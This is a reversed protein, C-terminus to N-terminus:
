FRVFTILWKQTFDVVGSTTTTTTTTRKAEIRQVRKMRWVKNAALEFTTRPAPRWESWRQWTNSPDARGGSSLICHACAITGPSIRRPPAISLAARVITKQNGTWLCRTYTIFQQIYPWVEGQPAIPTSKLQYNKNDNVFPLQDNLENRQIWNNDHM